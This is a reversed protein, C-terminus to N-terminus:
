RLTSLFAVLDRLERPKVLAGVPPMASIPDTRSAIEAKAIRQEAPPTGALLVVQAPTEEKLTGDIKKGNKLTVSVTGFGPAIVANPETLSQLIQQRTLRSAVGTLNPGVDSGANRVTHCRTCAAAPHDVFLERGRQVNGGALLADRFADVLTAANQSKQYAELKTRLEDSGTAQMADVLDLQVPLPIKGGALEDFFGGLAQQAESSKM